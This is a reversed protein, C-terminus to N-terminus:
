HRSVGASLVFRISHCNQVLTSSRSRAKEKDLLKHDGVGGQKITLSEMSGKEKDLKLYRHDSIHRRPWCTTFSKVQSLARSVKSTVYKCARIPVERLAQPAMM